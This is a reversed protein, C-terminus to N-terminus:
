KIIEFKIGNEKMYRGLMKIQERTGTVRFMGTVNSEPAESDDTVAEQPQPPTIVNGEASAEEQEIQPKESAYAMEEAKRQEELKRAEELKHAYELTQAYDLSEIFKMEIASFTPNQGFMQKLGEHEATIKAVANTITEILNEVKETKNAWKQPLIRDFTLWEPHSTKFFATKLKMLKDNKEADDFAKIQSDIMSIPEDILAIVEKCQAELVNYPELYQKKIAKRQEDIASKLKNLSARDKKADAIGDETVVLTKYHELKLTLEKKLLELNEIEKPLNLAESKLIMEM